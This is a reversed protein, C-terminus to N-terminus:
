RDKNNEVKGNKLIKTKNQKIKKKTHTKGHKLLKKKSGVSSIIKNNPINDMNKTLRIGQGNKETGKKHM